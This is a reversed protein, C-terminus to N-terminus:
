YFPDNRVKTEISPYREALSQKEVMEFDEFEFGPAVTCGVLSYSGASYARQWCNKPIVGQFHRDNALKNDLFIQNFDREQNIMELVLKHGKYFHWLEDSSVRHWNTCVGEPLLFYIGTAAARTGSDSHVQQGSRYTEKYFGGEPHPELGLEDVVKRYETSKGM